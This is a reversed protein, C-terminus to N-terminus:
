ALRGACDTEKWQTPTEEGQRVHEEGDVLM